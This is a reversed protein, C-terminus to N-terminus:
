CKLRMLECWISSCSVASTAPKMALVNSIRLTLTHGSLTIFECLNNKPRSRPPFKHYLVHTLELLHYKWAIKAVAFHIAEDALEVHVAEVFGTVFKGLADKAM